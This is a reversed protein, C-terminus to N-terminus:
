ASGTVSKTEMAQRAHLYEAFDETMRYRKVKNFAIDRVLGLNELVGMKQDLNPHAEYYYELTSGNNWYSWAKSLTVLDRGLPV